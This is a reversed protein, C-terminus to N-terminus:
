PDMRRASNRGFGESRSCNKGSRHNMHNAWKRKTSDTVHPSRRSHNTKQNQAFNNSETSEGSGERQPNSEDKARTWVIVDHTTADRAAVGSFTLNANATEIMLGAAVAVAITQFPLFNKM